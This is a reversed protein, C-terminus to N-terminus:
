FTQSEAEPRILQVRDYIVGPNSVGSAAKKVRDRVTSTTMRQPVVWERRKDGDPLLAVGLAMRGGSATTRAVIDPWHQARPLVLATKPTVVHVTIEVEPSCYDFLTVLEVDPARSWQIASDCYIQTRNCNHDYNLLARLFARERSNYASHIEAHADLYQACVDRHGRQWDLRQCEQSCYLLERCGSCRKLSRKEQIKGCQINDCARRPIHDPSDFLRLVDLRHLTTRELTAWARVFEMGCSSDPPSIDELASIAADVEALVYCSVTAPTIVQDLLFSLRRSTQDSVGRRACTLVAPIIGNQVAARVNQARMPLVMAYIKLCEELARVSQPTTSLSLSWVALTFPKVVGRSILALSLAKKLAPTTTEYIGDLRVWIALVSELLGRQDLSLATGAPPLILSFHDIIHAAVDDLTGGAGEVIEELGSTANSLFPFVSYLADVLLSPNQQKLMCVWTRSALAKFGQTSDIMVANSDEYSIDRTFTMFDSCLEGEDPMGLQDIPIGSLFDRFLHAFQVWAWARPWLDRGAQPPSRFAGLGSLSLLALDITRLVGPSAADLEVARPIGSPDLLQYFAPLLEVLESKARLADMLVAFGAVDSHSPLRKGCVAAVVRRSSLPLRGINTFRLAPHM